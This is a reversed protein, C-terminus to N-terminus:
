LKHRAELEKISVMYVALEALREVVDDALLLTYYQKGESDEDYHECNQLSEVLQQWQTLNM